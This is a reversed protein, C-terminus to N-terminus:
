IIEIRLVYRSDHRCSWRPKRVVRGSLTILLDIEAGRHSLASQATHAEVGVGTVNNWLFYVSIFVKMKRHRDKETHTHSHLLLLQFTVVRTEKSFAKHQNWISSSRCCLQRDTMTNQLFDFSFCALTTGFAALVKASGSLTASVQCQLGCDVYFMGWLAGTWTKSDNQVSSCTLQSLLEDMNSFSEGVQLAQWPFLKCVDALTLHTGIDMRSWVSWAQLSGGGEAGEFRLTASGHDQFHSFTLSLDSWTPYRWFQVLVFWCGLIRCM